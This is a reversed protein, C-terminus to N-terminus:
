SPWAALFLRARARRLHPDVLMGVSRLVAGRVRRAAAACRGGGPPLGAVTGVVMGALFAGLAMSAGFATASGAAIAIAMVLVTLTFLERLGCGRSAAGHDM